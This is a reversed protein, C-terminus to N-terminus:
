EEEEQLYRAIKLLCDQIDDNLLGCARIGRGADFVEVFALNDVLEEGEEPVPELDMELHAFLELLADRLNENM